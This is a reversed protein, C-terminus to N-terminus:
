GRGERSRVGFQGHVAGKALKGPELLACTLQQQVRPATTLGKHGRLQPTGLPTLPAFTRPHWAPPAAFDGM